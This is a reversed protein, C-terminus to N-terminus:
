PLAGPKHPFSPFQRRHEEQGCAAVRPFVGPLFNKLHCQVFIWSYEHYQFFITSRSVFRHFPVLRTRPTSCESRAESAGALWYTQRRMTLLSHQGPWLTSTKRSTRTSTSWSCPELTSTSSAYATAAALPWTPPPRTTTRRTPSSSLRGSHVIIPIRLFYSSLVSRGFRLRSIPLTTTRPILGSIHTILFISVAKLLCRHFCFARSCLELHYNFGSLTSQTMTSTIRRIARRSYM